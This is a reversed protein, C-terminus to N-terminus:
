RFGRRTTKPAKSGVPRGHSNVLFGATKGTRTPGAARTPIYGCRCKSLVSARRFGCSPCELKLVGPGSGPDPPAYRKANVDILLPPEDTDIKINVRYWEENKRLLFDEFSLNGRLSDVQQRAYRGKRVLDVGIQHLDALRKQTMFVVYAREGVVPGSPFNYTRTKYRVEGIDEKREIM